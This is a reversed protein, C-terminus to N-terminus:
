SIFFATASPVTLLGWLRHIYIIHIDDCISPLYFGMSSLSKIKRLRMLHVETHAHPRMPFVPCLPHWQAACPFKAWRASPHLSRYTYDPRYKLPRVYGRYSVSAIDYGFLPVSISTLLAVAFRKVRGDNLLALLTVSLKDVERPRFRMWVM